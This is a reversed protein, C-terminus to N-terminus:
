SSSKTQKIFYKLLHLQEENAIFMMEPHWQIGLILPTKEYIIGEVLGDESFAIAKLDEGLISIGQHHFSNVAITSKNFIEHLISREKLTVEHIVKTKDKFSGCHNIKSKRENELDQYLQGGFFVNILQIGKCIGLVPTQTSLAEKLLQLEFRDRKIVTDKLGEKPKQGYLSPDIDPGGTLILGDITECYDNILEKDQDDLIPILVPLGGAAKVLEAYDVTSMLLDQNDLGRQRKGDKCEKRDVYNTTIGIKPKM